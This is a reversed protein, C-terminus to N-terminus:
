SGAFATDLLFRLAPVQIGWVDRRELVSADALVVVRGQGVKCTALFGEGWARCQAPNTIILSGPMNVPVDGGMMRQPGEEFENESDFELRLGWRNLIPSLLVTDQPRRRDGLPFASVETLLPDAFVLVSGGARVWRDLEVNEEPSLPRPQALVLRDTRDLRLLTDLPVVEGYRALEARAWHPSQAQKVLDGVSETETWLIPLSTFLGIRHPPQRQMAALGIAVGAAAIVALVALLSRRLRARHLVPEPRPRVPPM